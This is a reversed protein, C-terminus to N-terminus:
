NSSMSQRDRYPRKKSLIQIEINILVPPLAFNEIPIEGNLIVVVDHKSIVNM